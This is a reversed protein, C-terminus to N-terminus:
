EFLAGLERIAKEAQKPVVGNGLLRLQDVINTIGDFSKGMVPEIAYKDVAYALAEVQGETIATQYKEVYGKLFTSDARSMIVRPEEWEYQQERPRAPWKDRSGAVAQREQEDNGSESQRGQLEAGRTDALQGAAGARVTGAQGNGQPVNEQRDRRDAQGDQNGGPRSGTHALQSCRKHRGRHAMIFLRQRKHPAGVEAATFCAWEADFGAQALDSLVFGLGGGGVFGPVEELFVYKPQVEVIIRFISDWIWRDDKTGKRKGAVSWPQCPVGADIIDVLGAFPRGDFTAVDDWIPADDLLEAQIKAVLNCVAYCEREVYAVTRLNPVARRLGLGIGDYGSCLSIRTFVDM